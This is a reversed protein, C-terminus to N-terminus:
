KGSKKKKNVGQKSKGTKGTKGTKKNSAKKKPKKDDKKKPVYDHKRKRKVTATEIKDPDIGIQQQQLDPNRRQLKSLVDWGDIVRGFVTYGSEPKGDPDLVLDRDRLPKFTIMFQSGAKDNDGYQMSLSGRFHRRYKKDNAEREVDYEPDKVTEDKSLGGEAYGGIKQIGSVVRHFSTGDYFKSEVLSIFIAVTEPAENEFLEVTIDGKSTKLLVLPLEEGAKVKADQLKKEEKLYKREDKLMGRYKAAEQDSRAKKLYEDALDLESLNFATIGALRYVLSQDRLEVTEINEILLKLLRLTTDYDDRLMLSGKAMQLVFDRLSGDRPDAKYAEEGLRAVEQMLKRAEEKKAYFKKSLGAREEEEAVSYEIQIQRVQKVIVTWKKLQENFKGFAKGGDSPGKEPAPKEEQALSVSNFVGNSVGNSVGNLLLAIMFPGGILALSLGRRM